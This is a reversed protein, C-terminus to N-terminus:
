CRWRWPRRGELWPLPWPGPLVRRASRGGRRASALAPDPRRWNVSLPFPATPAMLHLSTFHPSVQKVFAPLLCNFEYPGVLRMQGMDTVVSSPPRRLAKALSGRMSTISTAVLWLRLRLEIIINNVPPNSTTAMTATVTAMLQSLGRQFGQLLKGLNLTM